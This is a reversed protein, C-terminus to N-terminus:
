RTGLIVSLVIVAVAAAGAVGGVTGAIVKDKRIEKEMRKMNLDFISDQKSIIIDKDLIISDKKEIIISDEELADTLIQNEVLGWEYKVVIGNIDKLNNESIMVVTDNNVEFIAPLTDLSDTLEGHTLLNERLIEVNEDIPLYKIKEVEKVVVKTKINKVSDQLQAVRDKHKSIENNLAEIHLQETKIANEKGTIQTELNNISRNMFYAWISLGLCLVFLIGIIVYPLYKKM